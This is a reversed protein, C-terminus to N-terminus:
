AALWGQETQAQISEIQEVIYPMGNYTAMIITCTPASPTPM